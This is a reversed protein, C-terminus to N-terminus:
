TAATLTSPSRAGRRRHKRLGDSRGSGANNAAPVWAVLTVAKGSFPPDFPPWDATLLWGLPDRDM